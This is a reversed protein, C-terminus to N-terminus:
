IALFCSLKAPDRHGLRRRHSAFFVGATFGPSDFKM